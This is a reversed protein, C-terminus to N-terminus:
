KKNKGFILNSNKTKRTPEEIVEQKSEKNKIKELEHKKILYFDGNIKYPLNKINEWLLCIYEKKNKADVGEYKNIQEEIQEALKKVTPTILKEPVLTGYWDIKKGKKLISGYDM